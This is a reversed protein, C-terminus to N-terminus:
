EEGDDSGNATAQPRSELWSHCETAMWGVARAGLQKPKPFGEEKMWRRLTTESIGFLELLTAKRYILAQTKM